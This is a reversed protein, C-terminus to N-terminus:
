EPVLDLRVPPIGEYTLDVRREIPRFGRVVFTMEYSAPFLVWTHGRGKSTLAIQTTARRKKGAKAYVIKVVRPFPVGEPLVVQVGFGKFTRLEIVIETPEDLDIRRSETVYGDYRDGVMLVYLGEALLGFDWRGDRDTKGMNKRHIGAKSTVAAHMGVLPEGTEADVVRVCLSPQRTVVEDSEGAGDGCAALALSILTPVILIRNITM